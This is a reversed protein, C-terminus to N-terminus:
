SAVGKKMMKQFKKEKASRQVTEAIIEDLPWHYYYRTRTHGVGSLTVM